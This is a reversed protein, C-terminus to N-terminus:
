HGLWEAISGEAAELSAFTEERTAPGHEDSTDSWYEVWVTGEEEVSAEAARHGRTLYVFRSRGEGRISVDDVLPRLEAALRELIEDSGRDTM